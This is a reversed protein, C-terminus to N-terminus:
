GIRRLPSRAYFIQAPGDREDEWAAVVRGGSLALAPRWQNWGTRGSDDVRVRRGVRGGSVRTAFIDGPGGAHDQWAVVAGSGAPAIAPSFADVHAGGSRDAQLNVGGPVAVDVDYLPSATTASDASKSWDTFAVFPTPPSSNTLAARPTDELAENEQPTTNVREESGWTAGGDDSTRSFVDWEYSRFDTWAALVRSGRVALSPAWSHDLTKALEAPPETSDLRQAKGATAGEFAVVWIGAQPLDDGTFRARDDVFAVLARGAGAAAISPRLQQVADGVSADAAVPASFRRGRDTSRAVYVRQKSPGSDDSWALWVVGDPGIAIAPWWEEAGGAARGTAHRAKRWHRGGDLSRAVLVQDHGATRQEFAAVVLRGRAALAVNRQVALSGALPRNVSFPTRGRKRRAVRVLRRRADVQVDAYIVDEIQGGRCVGRAAPTTCPANGATPLLKEGVEGLRRRRQAITEAQSLPDPTVWAGVRLYGPAPPQGVLFGAAARRTRPKVAIAQQNDASLDFLNGTLEPLVMSSISPHRLVDSYGAGQINDPAWPGKTSITDGVFFEPQVLLDVHEQDLRSVLDPMWADKSTVFGLTGVPTRLASVGTFVEGPLLDLQGPLEVPTLYTKIQKSVLRGQPDFVLAMNSAKDTTAEYAYTREPEDPGRLQAVKAPNEEDCRVGGPLAPPTAKNDCVVHWDQAMDIGAELWVGYRAAIEAYTEVAVRAFTDTAAIALLRTPIGRQTLAPFKAGYYATQPGYAVLVNVIAETVSSAGRAQAGRQGSFIAMLGLDEPLAVFNSEGPLLHSAVDDAEVQVDPGRRSKDVLGVLHDHFHARTDVWSLSFKPGVAFARVRKAHAGAPAALLM